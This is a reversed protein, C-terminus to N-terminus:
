LSLSRVSQALIEINGSKEEEEKIGKREVGKENWTEVVEEEQVADDNQRDVDPAVRGREM